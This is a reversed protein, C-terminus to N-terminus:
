TEPRKFSQYFVMKHIITQRMSSTHTTWRQAKIDRRLMLSLKGVQQAAADLLNAHDQAGQSQQLQCLAGACRLDGIYDRESGFGYAADATPIQLAAQLACQVFFLPRSRRFHEVVALLLTQNCHYAAIRRFTTSTPGDTQYRFFGDFAFQNGTYSPFGDSDEQEAM